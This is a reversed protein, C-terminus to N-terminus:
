FGYEFKEKGLHGNIKNFLEQVYSNDHGLVSPYDFYNRDFDPYDFLGASKASDESIEIYNFVTYDSSKIRNEYKEETIVPVSTEYKGDWDTKWVYSYSGVNKNEFKTNDSWVCRDDSDYNEITKVSIRNGGFKENYKDYQEETISYTNGLKTIAYWKPGVDDQHSCDYYETCYETNGDEDTGCAYERSCTESHWYNYPEEEYVSVVEDGWYEKSIVSCTEILAKSGISLLTPVAILIVIEWWVIKERFKWILFSAFLIAIVITGFLL